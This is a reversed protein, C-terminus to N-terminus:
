LICIHQNYDKVTSKKKYDVKKLILLTIKDIIYNYIFSVYCKSEVLMKCVLM